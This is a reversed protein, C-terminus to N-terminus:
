KYSGYLRLAQYALRRLSQPSLRVVTRAGLGIILDNLGIFDTRYFDWLLLYERVLYAMGGRRTALSNGARAWVLPEQLNWGKGNARLLRVWLDYDELGRVARYGGVRQISSKKFLVSMHNFPNRRRALQMIESHTEPVRRYAYVRQPESDAFEGIWSGVIDIDPRSQLFAMQQEFRSPVSIDDADMRAVYEHKCSGLATGLAAGLGINKELGVITIPLRTKYDDITSQLEPPIPGDIVVVIQDAPLTQSALSLLSEAVWSSQDGKYLAMLVSFKPASTM